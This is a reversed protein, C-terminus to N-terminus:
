KTSFGKFIKFFHKKILYFPRYFYYTNEEQLVQAPNSAFLLHIYFKLTEFLSDQMSAHLKKRKIVERTTAQPTAIPSELLPLIKEGLQSVKKSHFTQHIVKPLPTKFLRHTLFLGLFLMKKGRFRKAYFFVKDWKLTNNQILRDLDVIWELREWLHRSGHICLYALLIEPPLTRIPTHNIIVEETEKWLDVNSNAFSTHFLKWHLEVVIGKHPHYLTIDKSSKIWLPNTLLAKSERLKYGQSEFLTVAQVLADTCVLLDIDGYQRLTINGYAIHALLPGKFPIIDIHYKNLLKVMKITEATMLMNKTAIQKYEKQFTHFIPSLVLDMSEQESYITKIYMYVLPLVGHRKALMIFFLPDSLSAFTEKAFKIDNPNSKIKSCVFLLKTDNKLTTNPLYM